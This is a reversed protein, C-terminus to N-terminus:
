HTQPDIYIRRLYAPGLHDFDRDTTLLTAAAVHATAAIWVDNKGMTRGQRDSFDDIETYANMLGPADIPVSIFCTLFFEM